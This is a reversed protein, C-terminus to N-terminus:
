GNRPTDDFGLLSRVKAVVGGSEREDALAWGARDAAEAVERFEYDLYDAVRRDEVSAGVFVHRPTHTAEHIEEAVLWKDREGQDYDQDLGYEDVFREVQEGDAGIVGVYRSWERAEALAAAPDALRRAAGRTVVLTMEGSGGGADDDLVSM